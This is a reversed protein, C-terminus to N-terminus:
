TLIRKKAKLDPPNNRGVRITPKTTRVSAHASPHEPPSVASSEDEPPAVLTPPVVPPEWIEVPPEDPFEPVPAVLV